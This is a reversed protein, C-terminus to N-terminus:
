GDSEYLPATQLEELRFIAPLPHSSLVMEKANKFFSAAIITVPAWAETLDLHIQLDIAFSQIADEYLSPEALLIDNM